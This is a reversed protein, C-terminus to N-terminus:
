LTRDNFNILIGILAGILAFAFISSGIEWVWYRPIQYWTKALSSNSGQIDDSSHGHHPQEYYTSTTTDKSSPGLLPGSQNPTAM